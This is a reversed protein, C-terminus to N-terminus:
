NTKLSYMEIKGSRFDLTSKKNKKNCTQRMEKLNMWIRLEAAEPSIKCTANLKWFETLTVYTLWKKLKLHTSHALM